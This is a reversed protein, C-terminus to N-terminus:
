AKQRLDRHRGGRLDPQWSTAVSGAHPSLVGRRGHTCVHICATEMGRQAEALHGTVSWHYREASLDALIFSFTSATSFVLAFFGNSSTLAAGVTLVVVATFLLEPGSPRAVSADLWAKGLMFGAIVNQFSLTPVCGAVYTFTGLMVLTLGHAAVRCDERNTDLAMEM